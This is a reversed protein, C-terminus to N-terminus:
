AAVGLITKIRNIEAMHEAYKESVERLEREAEGRELQARALKVQEDAIERRLQDLTRKAGEAEAKAAKAADQFNAISSVLDAASRLKAALDLFDPTM